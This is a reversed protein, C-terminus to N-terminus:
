QSEARTPTPVTRSKKKWLYDLGSVLLPIALCMLTLAVHDWLLRDVQNWLFLERQILFLQVQAYIGFLAGNKWLIQKDLANEMRAKRYQSIAVVLYCVLSLFFLGVLLYYVWPDYELNDVLFPITMCIAPILVASQLCPILTKRSLRGRTVAFIPFFGQFVFVGIITYLYFISAGDMGLFPILIGILLALASVGIDTRSLVKIMETPPIGVVKKRHFYYILLSVLGGLISSLIAMWFYNSISLIGNVYVLNGFYDETEYRTFLILPFFAMWGIINVSYLAVTTKLLITKDQDNYDVRILFRSRLLVFFIVAGASLIFFVLFGIWPRYTLYGLVVAIIYGCACIFACISAYTSFKGRENEKIRIESEEFDERLLYDLSVHFLSAMRILKDTEPYALDSEWKSVSQRSVGLYEALQEQTINLRKRKEQIKNGTTM